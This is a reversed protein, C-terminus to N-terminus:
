RIECHRPDWICLYKAESLQDPLTEPHLPLIETSKNTHILTNKHSIPEPVPFRIM